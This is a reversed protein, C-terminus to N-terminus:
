VHATHLVLRSIQVQLVTLCHLSCCNSALVSSKQSPDLAAPLLSQLGDGHGAPGRVRKKVRIPGKWCCSCPRLQSKKPEAPTQQNHNCPEGCGRATSACRWACALVSLCMDVFLESSQTLGVATPSQWVPRQSHDLRPLSRKTRLLARCRQRADFCCLRECPKLNDQLCLSDHCRGTSLRGASAPPGPEL